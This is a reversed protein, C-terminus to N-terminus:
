PDLPRRQRRRGRRRCFNALPQLGAPIVRRMLDGEEFGPRLRFVLDFRSGHLEGVADRSRQRKLSPFGETVVPCSVFLGSANAHFDELRKVGEVAADIALGFADLKNQSVANQAPTAGLAADVMRYQELAELQLEISRHGFKREGLGVMGGLKVGGQELRHGVHVAARDSPAAFFQVPLSKMRKKIASSGFEQFAQDHLKRRTSFEDLIARRVPLM